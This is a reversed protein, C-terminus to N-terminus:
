DHYRSDAIPHTLNQFMLAPQYILNTHSVILPINFFLVLLGIAIKIPLALFYINAQPMSRSMLAFAVDTLWLVVIVPSALIFVLLFVQTLLGFLFYGQLTQFSFEGIPYIDLLISFGKLLTHHFNQSLFIIATMLILLDSIVGTQHGSSPDFIAAANIGMQLEIMKGIYDLAAYILHFNIIILLGFLFEGILSALSLQTLHEKQTSLLVLSLSFTLVLRFIIPTRMLVFLPFVMFIPALRMFIHATTALHQELIGFM